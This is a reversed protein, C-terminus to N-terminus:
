EFSGMKLFNVEEQTLYRWRGRPLNKKTLGAFYVRDLKTVHYGLSEFIRRVIRNRGSHIEIGAQNRDNETAYSIADAHIPGDELEIGDAIAQMDDESIDKDTWVHYIKKKVYKPHTLKSALDGDNTLLLVGTTNRDLRGVPYIRENCAGKVLDMVTTRGNPDDSTTVCDKPKNLLIYCKSELTVVKEDYEVVDSHSIKTGLETVVEGNVKVLGQQIFEDAERRSCIGANAMFKNLRIQENPDPIPMEYEIRKPRPTFSKGQRPANFGQRNPGQQRRNNYGGQRNPGQQRNNNYGGQQRNNYGGQQRNNNYGGQQRNNYGGQRNNNYGGQQRYNNYGGEQQTSPTYGESMSTGEAPTTSEAGESAAPSQYQQRPQYGGQNYRNNYNNGQRYGGQNYRNNGYGGQQRNNNYPRPQYNRERQYDGQTHEGSSQYDSPQDYNVKGYHQADGDSSAAIRNEGIRPRKPKKEESDM